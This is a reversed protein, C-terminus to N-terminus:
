CVFAIVSRTIRANLDLWVGASAQVVLTSFSGAPPPAHAAIVM